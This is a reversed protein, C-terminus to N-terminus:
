QAARESCMGVRCHNAIKMAADTALHLLLDELFFAAQGGSDNGTDAASRVRDACEVLEDLIAVHAQDANFGPAASGLEALMSRAKTASDGSSELSREGIDQLILVALNCLCM